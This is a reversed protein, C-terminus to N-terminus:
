MLRRYLEQQRELASRLASHRYPEPEITEGSLTPVVAEDAIIGAAHLALLAAGRSSAETETCLTIPQGIADAIMRAWTRSAGIAGGSAIIERADPFKARLLDAVLAFRLAVGEMAAQLVDLPTTTISLGHLTARAEPRWGTSREGALFPLFTLGHCDPTRRALEAEIEVENELRLTKHVWAFADGGDSFAGGMVFRKRDLRYCWLEDPIDVSDAEWLVRIAGSTGLNIAIRDQNACGSGLNSSAGDGIAPLWPIERLEPWRHAWEEKLGASHNDLDGLTSLMEASIGSVALMEGDWDCTNQDFLGTGSAMSVSCIAQGFWNSYLFEAPSMWCDVSRFLTPVEDALWNLKAPFYSPHIACGTRWHVGHIDLQASLRKAAGASRTDAWTYIPTLAQGQVDAGLFSHWFTCMGAAAIKVRQNRAKVLVEDICRSVDRLLDNADLEAKGDRNTKLSYNIQSRLEPRSSGSSNYLIARASSTGIDIALVHDNM